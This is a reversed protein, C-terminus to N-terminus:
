PLIERKSTPIGRCLICLIVDWLLAININVAMVTETRTYVVAEIIRSLYVSIRIKLYPVIADKSIRGRKKHVFM